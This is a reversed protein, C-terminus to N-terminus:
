ARGRVGDSAFEAVITAVAEPAEVQPSHGADPVVAFRAEGQAAMERGSALPWIEDREGWIVLKPLDLDGLREGVRRRGSVYAIMARYAGSYSDRAMRGSDGVLEDPVEFGPAFLNAIARRRLTDTATARLLPGLGPLFGLQALLGPDIQPPTPPTNLLVIGEVRDAALAAAELAAHGGMSHAVLVAGSLDEKRLVAAIAEGQVPM